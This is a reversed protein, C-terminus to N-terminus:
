WCGHNVKLTVQIRAVKVMAGAIAGSVSSHVIRSLQPAGSSSSAITKSSECYNGELLRVYCHFIVMYKIISQNMTTLLPPYISCPQHASSTRLKHVFTWQILKAKSCPRWWCHRGIVWLAHNRMLLRSLGTPGLLFDHSMHSQGYITNKEKHNDRTLYGEPIPSLTIPGTWPFIM